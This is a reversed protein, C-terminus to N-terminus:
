ITFHFVFKLTAPSSYSRRSLLTELRFFYPFDHSGIVVIPFNPFRIELGPTSM